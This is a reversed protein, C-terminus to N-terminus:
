LQSATIGLTPLLVRTGVTSNRQRKLHPRPIGSTGCSLACTEHGFHVEAIPADPWWRTQQWKFLIVLRCWATTSANAPTARLAPRGHRFSCPAGSPVRGPSKNIGRKSTWPGPAMSTVTLSGNAGLWGTWSDDTALQCPACSCSLCRFYPWIHLLNPQLSIGKTMSTHPPKPSSALARTPVSRFDSRPWISPQCRRSASADTQCCTPNAAMLSTPRCNTQLTCATVSGTDAGIVCWGNKSVNRKQHYVLSSHYTLSTSMPLLYDGPRLDVPSFPGSTLVM